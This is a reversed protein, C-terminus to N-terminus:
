IDSTLSKLIDNFCNESKNSMIKSITHMNVLDPHVYWDEFQLGKEAVNLFVPIYKHKKFIARSTEMTDFYNGRYIDHEFTVVGFKYEPFVHEDLLQLTKLTSGNTVELDIQLYDMHYPMKYKQLLAKYDITTADQIIYHSKPRQTDYKEAYNSNYEVLIGSWDYDRELIYTNNILIPDNSGIELFTGNRKKETCYLVFLDQAVQSYSTM